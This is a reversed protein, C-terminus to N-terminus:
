WQSRRPVWWTHPWPESISVTSEIPLLGDVFPLLGEANGAAKLFHRLFDSLQSPCSAGFGKVPEHFSHAVLRVRRGRKLPIGGAHMPNGDSQKEKWCCAIYPETLSIALLLAFCLVDLRDAFQGGALDTRCGVSRDKTSESWRLARLVHKPVLVAPFFFSEGDHDWHIKRGNPGLAGFFAFSGKDVVETRVAGAYASCTRPLKAVFRLNSWHFSFRRHAALDDIALLKGIAGKEDTEPELTVNGPGNQLPEVVNQHHVYESSAAMKSVTPTGPM